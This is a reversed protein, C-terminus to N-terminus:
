LLNRIFDSYFCVIADHKVGMHIIMNFGPYYHAIPPGQFEFFKNKLVMQMNRLTFCVKPLFSYYSSGAFLM